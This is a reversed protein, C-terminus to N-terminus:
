GIKLSNFFRKFINGRQKQPLNIENSIIKLIFENVLCIFKFYKHYDPDIYGEKAFEDNYNRSILKNKIKTQGNHFFRSRIHYIM